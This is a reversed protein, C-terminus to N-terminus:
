FDRAIKEDAYRGYKWLNWKPKQYLHHQQSKQVVKWMFHFAQCWNARVKKLQIIKKRKRKTQLNKQRIMKKERKNNHSFILNLPHLWVNRVSYVKMITTMKMKKKVVGTMGISLKIVIVISMRTMSIIAMLMKKMTSLIQSPREIELSLVCGLWFNTNGWNAKM